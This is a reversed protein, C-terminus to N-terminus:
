RATVPIPSPAKHSNPPPPPLRPQPHQPLSDPYSPLTHPHPQYPTTNPDSSPATFPYTYRESFCYVMIACVAWSVVLVVVDEQTPLYVSLRSMTAFGAKGVNHTSRAMIRCLDSYHHHEAVLTPMLGELIAISAIYVFFLTLVVDIITM